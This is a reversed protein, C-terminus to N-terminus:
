VIKYLSDGTVFAQLDKWDRRYVLFEEVPVIIDVETFDDWGEEFLDRSHKYPSTFLEEM